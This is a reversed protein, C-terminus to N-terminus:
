DKYNVKKGSRCRRESVDKTVNTASKTDKAASVAVKPKAPNLSSTKVKKKVAQVLPQPVEDDSVDEDSASSVEPSKQRARKGIVKPMKIPTLPKGKVLKAVKGAKIDKM